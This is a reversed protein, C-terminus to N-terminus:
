LSCSHPLIPPISLSQQNSPDRPPVQHGEAEAKAGKQRHELQDSRPPLSRSPITSKNDHSKGQSSTPLPPNPPFAATQYCPAPPLPPSPPPTSLFYPSSSSSFPDPNRKHKSQSNRM